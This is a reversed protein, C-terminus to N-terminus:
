PTKAPPPAPTPPTPQPAAPNDFRVQPAERAAANTVEFYPKAEAGIVKATVVTPFQRIYANYERAAANYDNRAVSVRNETGTLEDQLRLFNQDSKLEPYAESIAILRGLAGSLGENAEAMQRPDGSQVANILRSRANAVNTFIVQEQQAYREVTKVLNPVLDARRQLQVEIRGRAENTQEDLVQIRNYGCGTTAALALASLLALLPRGM